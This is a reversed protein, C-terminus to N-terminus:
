RSRVKWAVCIRPFWRQPPDAIGAAPLTVVLIAMSVSRLMRM